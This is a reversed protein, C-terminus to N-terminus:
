SNSSRNKGNGCRDEQIRQFRSKIEHDFLGEEYLKQKLMEHLYIIRRNWKFSDGHMYSIVRGRESVSMEM